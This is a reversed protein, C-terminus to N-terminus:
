PNQGATIDPQCAAARPPEHPPTSSPGVSARHAQSHNSALHPSPQMAPRNEGALVIWVEAVQVGGAAPDSRALSALCDCPGAEAPHDEGCMPGVLVQKIAPQSRRSAQSAQDLFTAMYARALHPPTIIRMRRVARGRDDASCTGSSAYQGARRQYYLQREFPQSLFFEEIDRQLQSRMDFDGLRIATQSNTAVVIDGMVDADSSEILKITVHARGLAGRQFFLVYSTQCGNVIRFDRIRFVSGTRKLQKAVVTIGNNMVAFRDRQEDSQLTVQIGANVTNSLQQFERVNEHFLRRLIQGSNNTLIQDVFNQAPCSV